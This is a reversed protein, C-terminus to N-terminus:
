FHDIAAGLELLDMFLCLVEDSTDLFFEFGDVEIHLEDSDSLNM